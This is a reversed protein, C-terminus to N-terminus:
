TVVGAFSSTTSEPTKHGDKVRQAKRTFDMKVDFIIHSLACFWGPPAEDGHELYEFAINLNSVEKALVDMWLTNSNKRDLEM